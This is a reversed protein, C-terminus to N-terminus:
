SLVANQLFKQRTSQRKLILVDIFRYKINRLDLFSSIFKSFTFSMTSYRFQCSHAPIAFKSTLDSFRVFAATVCAKSFKWQYSIFICALLIDPTEVLVVYVTLYQLNFQYLAPFFLTFRLFASFQNSQRISMSVRYEM